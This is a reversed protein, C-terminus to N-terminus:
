RLRRYQPEANKDGNVASPTSPRRQGTKALGQEKRSALLRDDNVDGHLLELVVDDCILKKM